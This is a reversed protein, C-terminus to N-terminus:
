YVNVLHFIFIKFSEVLEQFYKKSEGLSIHMIISALKMYIGQVKSCLFVGLFDIIYFSANLYNSILPLKETQREDEGCIVDGGGFFFDFFYM